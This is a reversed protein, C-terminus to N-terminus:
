VSPVYVETAVIADMIGRGWVEENGMEFGGEWLCVDMEEWRAARRRWQEM